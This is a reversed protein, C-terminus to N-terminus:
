IRIYHMKIINKDGKRKKRGSESFRQKKILGEKM